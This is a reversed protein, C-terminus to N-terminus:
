TPRANDNMDRYFRASKERLEKVTGRADSGLAIKGAAINAVIGIDGEPWDCRMKARESILTPLVFARAADISM